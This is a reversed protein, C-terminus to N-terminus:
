PQSSLATGPAQGGDATAVWPAYGLFGGADLDPVSLLLQSRQLTFTLSADEDPTVTASASATAYGALAATVTYSGFPVRDFNFTGDSGTVAQQGGPVLEISVGPAPDGSVFTVTGSISALLPDGADSNLAAIGSGLASTDGADVTTLTGPTCAGIGFLSLALFLRNAM